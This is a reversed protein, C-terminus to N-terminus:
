KLLYTKVVLGQYSCWLIFQETHHQCIFTHRTDKKKCKYFICIVILLSFNPDNVQIWDIFKCHYTRGCLWWGRWSMECVHPSSFGYTHKTYTGCFFQLRVWPFTEPDNLESGTFRFYLLWCYVFSTKLLYCSPYKLCIFINLYRWCATVDLQFGMGWVGWSKLPFFIWIYPKSVAWFVNWDCRLFLIPFSSKQDLWWLFWDAILSVLM